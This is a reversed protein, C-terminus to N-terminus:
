AKGTGRTLDGGNLGGAIRGCDASYHEPAIPQSGGSAASSVMSPICIRGTGAPILSFAKEYDWCSMGAHAGQGFERPWWDAASFRGRRSDVVDGALQSVPYEPTLLARDM